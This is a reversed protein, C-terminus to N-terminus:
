HFYLTTIPFKLQFMLVLSTGTVALLLLGAMIEKLINKM